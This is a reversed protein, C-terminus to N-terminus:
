NINHKQLEEQVGGSVQELEETSLQEKEKTLEDNQKIKEESL